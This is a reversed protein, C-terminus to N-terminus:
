YDNPGEGLLAAAISDKVVMADPGPEGKMWLYEIHLAKEHIYVIPDPAGYAQALVIKKVQQKLEAKLGADKTCIFTVAKALFGLGGAIFTARGDKDEGFNGWRVSIPPDIGCAKAIEARAPPIVNKEFAQIDPSTAAFAAAAAAIVLLNM